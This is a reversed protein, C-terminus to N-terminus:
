LYLTMDMYGFYLASTVTDPHTKELHSKLGAMFTMIGKYAKQIEGKRLQRQYELIHQNLSNMRKEKEV